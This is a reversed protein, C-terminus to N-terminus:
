AALEVQRPERGRFLTVSRYGAAALEVRARDLDRGVDAQGHADAGITVTVGARRFAALLDPAPYLEGLARRYGASSVEICVGAAAAAEVMRRHIRDRAPPQSGFVKALDPHALTDYIGSAAAACWGDVYREWVEAEGATDWVSNARHDIEHVGLWHYSGLVVDWPHGAAVAAVEDRRDPVWDLEIGARVPLGAAAVERLLSVYAAIDVVCGHRWGPHDIWGAAVSFRYVHETMAIESLGHARATQWYRAVHDVTLLDATLPEADGALHMHYDAPV